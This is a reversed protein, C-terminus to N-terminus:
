ERYWAGSVCAHRRCGPVRGHPQSMVLQRRLDAGAAVPDGVPCPGLVPASGSSTWSSPAARSRDRGSPRAPGAAACRRWEQVVGRRDRDEVQREIVIRRVEHALRTRSSVSALASGRGRRAARARPRARTEARQRRRTPRGTAPAPGRGSRAPGPGARHSRSVRPEVERTDLDQGGPPSAELGPARRPRGPGRSRPRSSERGPRRRRDAQAHDEGAGQVSRGPRDVAGRPGPGVGRRAPSSVSMRSSVAGSGSSRGGARRPRAAVPRARQRRVIGGPFPAGRRRPSRRRVCSRSSRM